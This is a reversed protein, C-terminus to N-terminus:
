LATADKLRLEKNYLNRSRSDSPISEHPSEAAFFNKSDQAVGTAGFGRWCDDALHPILVAILPREIFRITLEALAKRYAPELARECNITV